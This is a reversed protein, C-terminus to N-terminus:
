DRVNNYIVVGAGILALVMLAKGFGFRRRPRTREMWEDAFTSGREGLRELLDAGQSRLEKYLDTGRDAIQEKLDQIAM